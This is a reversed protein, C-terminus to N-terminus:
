RTRFKRRMAVWGLVTGLLTLTAPEPVAELQQYSIGLGSTISAAENLPQLNEDFLTFGAISATNFFNAVSTGPGTPRGPGIGTGAIVELQFWLPFEVGYTFPFIGGFFAPGDVVPWDYATCGFPFIPDNIGIKVCAYPVGHPGFTAGVGTGTASNTGDLTYYMEMYGTQGNWPLYSVTVSDLLASVADVLVGPGSSNFTDSTVSVSGGLTGPLAVSSAFYNVTEGTTTLTGSATILDGESFAILGCPGGGAGFGNLCYVIGANRFPEIPVAECPSLAGLIVVVALAVAPIALLRVVVPILRFTRM